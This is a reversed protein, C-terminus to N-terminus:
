QNSPCETVNVEDFRLITKHPQENKVMLKLYTNPLLLYEEEKYNAYHSVNKASTAEIEMIISSDEDSFNEATHPNTTPSM